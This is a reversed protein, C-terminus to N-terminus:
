IPVLLVREAQEADERQLYITSGEKMEGRIFKYMALADRIVDSATTQQESAMQRIAEAAEDNLNVSLKQTKATAMQGEGSIPEQFRGTIMKQGSATHAIM